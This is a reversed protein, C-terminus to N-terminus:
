IEIIKEWNVYIINTDGYKDVFNWDEYTHWHFLYKPKYKDVYERIWDFWIHWIDNNDNIWRPPCHTIFVDCKWISNLTIKCEEQTSMYECNKVYRVCWEYWLFKIWKYSWLKKHLNTINLKDMYGSECHNGYIWIKPIDPFINLENLDIFSLDGLTIILEIDPNDQIIEKIPRSTSKDAILLLKM